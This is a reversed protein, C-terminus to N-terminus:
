RIPEGRAGKVVRPDRFWWCRPKPCQVPAKSSSPDSSPQRSADLEGCAGIAIGAAAIVASAVTATLRRRIHRRRPQALSNIRRATFV